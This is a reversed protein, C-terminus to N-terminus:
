RVTNIRNMIEERGEKTIPIEYEKVDLHKSFIKDIHDTNVIYSRHVRLLKPHNELFEFDKMTARLVLRETALQLKTYSGEGKIYLLRSIEIKQYAHESKVFFDEAVTKDTNSSIEIAGKTLALQVGAILDQPKCPKTLISHPSENLVDLMTKPDIHSSLFLFPIKWRENIERAIDVGTGVGNLRIDLIVLDPQERNLQLLAKEYSDVVAVVEYGHEVLTQQLDEAIWDEDEVILIKQVAM